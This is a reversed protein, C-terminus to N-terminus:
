RFPWVGNTVQVAYFGDNGDSYWIQGHAVDFAPASMDYSSGAGGTSSPHVPANFYALEKPHYPDRIDFIRLGSQIFGCAVIGPDNRQPVACYHGAYGQLESSEGPDNALAARNQQMNVELRINSVLRPQAPNGVDIIRAAGVDANAASSISGNVTAFEDIEVLFPHRNINVPIPVQPISVSPWTYHSLFRVQPNGVRQQVQGVDLVTLGPTGSNQTMGQIGEVGSGKGANLDAIYLIRGDDSTNLGHVSLGHEEWLLKPVSPVSVDLAALTDGGASSVWFTNGDPSFTGEHGLLGLPTSSELVPHRCDQSVDYIDVWGPYAFPNGLDAALLGRKANLNLSEHPSQMAPTQLDDTMVPKAPNSMDLVFVGTKHTDSAVNSPFLLTTDYYACVHGAKDVYRYNRYGGTTGFHGVAATNCTYGKAARGDAVDRASVQGQLGTEPMSGPGCHARPVPGFYVNNSRAAPGTARAAAPVLWALGVSLVSLLAVGGRGWRM